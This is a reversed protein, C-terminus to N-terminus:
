VYEEHGHGTSSKESAKNVSMKWVKSFRLARRLLERCERVLCIADLM